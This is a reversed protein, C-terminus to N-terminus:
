LLSLVHPPPVVGTSEITSLKLHVPLNAEWSELDGHLGKLDDALREPGRKESKEAYFKNLIENMVISLKCLEGFTTVSYAPSGPYDKTGSYAFPKWHELEEFNDQFM